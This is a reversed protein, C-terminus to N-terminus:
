GGGMARNLNFAASILALHTFAQPYNGLSEGLPGAEESFLGLPSAQALMQEFLLRAKRLYASDHRGARTLAEVYWFGCMNFTGEGGVVGDQAENTNYRSIASGALLGGQDQQQGIAQLTSLMRPDNPAMFLVLPMMLTSADLTEAGYYQVFAHRKDSWGQNMIEEYLKDRCAIWRALDAPFSRKLALRIGRDLAVWCMLKSYVFHRLGGRVEWIGNDPRSYNATVWDMLRRLGRWMSSSIPHVYKNFLYVSDMLEGYIDLQLQDSAANGVRVPKSGRYGDLHGLTEETLKRRGDIGYVTQLTGEDGLESCRAGIWRMFREAEDTLGIRLLSYVTFASDRIWSCRYDWNRGGGVWEPLSTTPAAVIAGTPEYALLELALASRNVWEKWRGTYTCKSVWGQWYDVTEDVANTAAQPSLPRPEHPEDPPFCRLAFAASEGESLDFEAVAAGSSEQMAVSSDLTLVSGRSYFAAGGSGVRAEHPDRAYNFAPSCEARFRVAGRACRVVRYLPRGWDQVATGAFHMAMFDIVEALAGPHLFRTILVNTDPWYLQQSVFGGGTPAISFHGGKNDDLLAAFVSPSDFRPFCLWDVAGTKSILAATHLNGVIGHDEIPQYM